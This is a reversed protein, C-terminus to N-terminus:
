GDQKKLIRKLTTRGSVDPDELLRKGEPTGVVGRGKWEDVHGAWKMSRLNMMRIINPYSYLNHLKENHLNGRDGTMEYTKSGFMRRLVRNEFARLGQEARRILSWTECGCFVAPLIITRHTETKINEPLLRSLFLESGFTLL